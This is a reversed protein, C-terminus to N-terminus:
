LLWTVTDRLALTLISRPCMMDMNVLYGDATRVTGPKVSTWGIRKASVSAAALPDNVANWPMDDQAADTFAFNWSRLNWARPAWNDCM